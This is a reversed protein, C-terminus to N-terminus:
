EGHSTRCHVYKKICEETPSTSHSPTLLVHVRRPMLAGQANFAPPGTLGGYVLVSDPTGRFATAYQAIVENADMLEIERGNHRAYFKQIIRPDGRQLMMAMKPKYVREALYSRHISLM